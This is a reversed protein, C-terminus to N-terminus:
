FACEQPGRPGGPSFAPLVRLSAPPGNIRCCWRGQFVGGCAVGALILRGRGARSAEQWEGRGGNYSGEKIGRSAAGAAGLQRGMDGGDKVKGDRMGGGDGNMAWYHGSGEEWYM